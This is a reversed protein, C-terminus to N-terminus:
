NHMLSGPEPFNGSLDIMEHTSKLSNMEEQLTAGVPVPM